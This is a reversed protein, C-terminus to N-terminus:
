DKVNGYEDAPENDIFHDLMMATLQPHLIAMGLHEPTVFRQYLSRMSRSLQQPPILCMKLQIARRLKLTMINNDFLRMM